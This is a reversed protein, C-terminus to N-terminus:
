AFKTQGSERMRAAAVNVECCLSVDFLFPRALLAAKRIKHNTKKFM